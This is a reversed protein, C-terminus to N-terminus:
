AGAAMELRPHCTACDALASHLARAIENVRASPVRVRLEDRAVTSPPLERAVREACDCEAHDNPWAPLRLATMDFADSDAVAPRAAVAWAAERTRLRTIFGAKGIDTGPADPAFSARLELPITAAALPAVARPHLAKAGLDAVRTAEDYTLAPILRADQIVRPDATYIGCVDSYITLSLAGLAAAIVAATLDSSNRGMTTMRGAADRAIYGPLIPIAGRKIPLALRPLLWGRSALVSPEPTVDARERATLLIPADTVAFPAAGAASVAVALLPTALREGWGSFRAVALAQESEDLLAGNRSQSALEGAERTVEAWQASFAAPISGILDRYAEGHRTELAYLAASWDTEARTASEAIRMLGDTVGAMASVIATVPGRRHLRALLAGAARLKAADAVSSGGFKVARMRGGLLLAKAAM